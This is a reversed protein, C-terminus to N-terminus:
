IEGPGGDKAYDEIRRLLGTMLIKYYLSRSSCSRNNVYQQEHISRMINFVQRISLTSEVQPENSRHVLLRTGSKVKIQSDIIEKM